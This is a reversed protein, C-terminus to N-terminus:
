NFEFKLYVNFFSRFDIRAISKLCNIYIHVFQIVFNKFTSFVVTSINSASTVPRVRARTYSKKTIRICVISYSKYIICSHKPRSRTIITKTIDNNTRHIIKRIILTPKAHTISTRVRWHRLAMVWHRHDCRKPRKVKFSGREHRILMFPPRHRKKLDGVAFHFISNPENERRIEVTCGPFHSSCRAPRARTRARDCKSVRM